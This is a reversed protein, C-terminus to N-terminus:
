KDSGVNKLAAKPLLERLVGMFDREAFARARECLMPVPSSPESARFFRQVQDLLAIAQSRSQICYPTGAEDPPVTAPPGARPPTESVKSLRAVPLEFFQESGIQFAAKEMQTPVLINMIEVFSKGILQHAQRVLPLTPSSPELRSYYDAIAELANRAQTLNAPASGGELAAGERRLPGKAGDGGIQSVAQDTISDPPDIFGSIRDVMTPLSELGLSVSQRVFAGRIRALSTKLLAIHRRSSALIAPDADARGDTLASIEYKQEGSRPKVEGSAILWARYTVPGVRPTEFLVAYQLPFVVTSLDLTALAALRAGVDGAQPRPHVTDWFRDLWEAVAAVTTAFGALDRNLILLRAQMIFLRLDRTRAMLSKIAAIQGPLATRAATSQEDQASFFPRDNDQFFSTPLILEASAFFNLYDRDDDLDLDRGCPNAESLPACLAAIEPDLGVESATGADAAADPTEIVRAESPPVQENTLLLETHATVVPAANEGLEGAVTLDSGPM